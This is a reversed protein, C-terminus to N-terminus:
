KGTFGTGDIASTPFNGQTARTFKGPSRVLTYPAILTESQYIGDVNPLKEVAIKAIDELSRSQFAAVIDFNGPGAYAEVLGPLKSIKEFTSEFSEASTIGSNTAGNVKILAIGMPFGSEPFKEGQFGDSVFQTIASRVGPISRIQRITKYIQDTNAARTRIAIDFRGTTPAIFDVHAEHKLEEIARSMYGPEVNVFIYAPFSRTQSMKKM